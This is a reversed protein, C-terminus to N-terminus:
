RIREAVAIVDDPFAEAIDSLMAARELPAVRRLREVQTRRGRKIRERERFDDGVYSYDHLHHGPEFNTWVSEQVPGVQTQNVIDHRSWSALMEDYLPNRYGSLMVRCALTTLVDVLERHQDRTYDHRYCRTRRRADAWYPPDCYVLEDGTFAFGRLFDVACGHVLELGPFPDNRWREVVRSDLDIGVSRQAPRKRRLVAGNGLHTEIYIRHPPMMSIIRQFARGKGGTQAM